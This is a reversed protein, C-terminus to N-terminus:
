KKSTTSNEEAEQRPKTWEVIEYAKKISTEHEEASPQLKAFKALDATQLIYKLNDQQQNLKTIPKINQLLEDSTQEMANIEFQREIYVRLIDTLRTYYDKVRNNQWLKEKELTHLNKIAQEYPPEQPIIKKPKESPKKKRFFIFYALIALLIVAGLIYPWYALINFPVSRIQKIPKFPKTTDVSVTNVLILLSDTRLNTNQAATDRSVIKFDFAPIKWHGSDFGTLTIQQRYRNKGQQKLTDIKSRNVVLLHNFTDPVEAWVLRTAPDATAELTVHFQEGIKIATSDISAKATVPLNQQAHVHILPLSLIVSILLSFIIKVASHKM